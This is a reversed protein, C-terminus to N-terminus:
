DSLVLGIALLDVIIAVTEIVVERFEEISYLSVVIIWMAAHCSTLVM